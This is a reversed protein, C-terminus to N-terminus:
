VRATYASVLPVGRNRLGRTGRRRYSLWVHAHRLSHLSGVRPNSAVEPRRQVPWESSIGGSMGSRRGTTTDTVTFDSGGAGGVRLFPRCTSISERSSVTTRTPARSCRRSPLRPIYCCSCGGAAVPFVCGLPAPTSGPSRGTLPQRHQRISPWVKSRAQATGCISATAPPRDGPSGASQHHSALGHPPLICSRAHGTRSCETGAAWRSSHPIRAALHV